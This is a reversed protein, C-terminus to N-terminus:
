SRDCRLVWTSVGIGSLDPNGEWKANQCFAEHCSSTKNYIKVKDDLALLSANTRAVNINNFNILDGVTVTDRLSIPGCAYAFEALYHFSLEEANSHLQAFLKGAWTCNKQPDFDLWTLNQLVKPLSSLDTMIYPRYLYLGLTTRVPCITTLELSRPSVYM